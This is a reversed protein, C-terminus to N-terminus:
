KQPESVQPAAPLYCQTEEHNRPWERAVLYKIYMDVLRSRADQLEETGQVDAVDVQPRLANSELLIERLYAAPDDRLATARRTAKSTDGYLASCVDVLEKCVKARAVQCPEFIALQLLLSQATPDLGGYLQAALPRLGQLSRCYAKRTGEDTGPPVKAVKFLAEWDQCAEQDLKQPGSASDAKCRQCACEFGWAGRLRERRIQVPQKLEQLTMYSTTIPEGEALPRLVIFWLNVSKKRILPDTFSFFNKHFCRVNCHLEFQFLVQLM